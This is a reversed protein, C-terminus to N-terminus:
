NECLGPQGFTRIKIFYERYLLLIASIMGLITSVHIYAGLGDSVSVHMHVNTNM